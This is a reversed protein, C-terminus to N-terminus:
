TLSILMSYIVKDISDLKIPTQPTQARVIQEAHATWIQEKIEMLDGLRVNISFVYSILYITIDSSHMM